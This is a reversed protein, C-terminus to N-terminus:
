TCINETMLKFKYGNKSCWLRAFKWKSENVAYTKLAELYRKTKRGSKPLKPPYCQSLPKVEIVYKQEKGEKDKVKVLFDPYYRHRKGDIPSLYPIFLEESAWILINPNRDFTKMVNREWISRYVIKSPDGKYKQPNTPYFSGKYAM